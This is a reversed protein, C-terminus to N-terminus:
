HVSERVRGMTGADMDVYICQPAYDWKVLQQKLGFLFSNRVRVQIPRDPSMYTPDDKDMNKKLARFASVALDRREPTSFKIFLMGSFDGKGKAFIDVVGEVKAQELLRKVEAIAADVSGLLGLGGVVATVSNDGSPTERLNAIM